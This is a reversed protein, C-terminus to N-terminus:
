ASDKIRQLQMIYRKDGIIMKNCFEVYNNSKMLTENVFAKLKLSQYYAYAFSIVSPIFSLLCVVGPIVCILGILMIVAGFGGLYDLFHNIDNILYLAAFIILVLEVAFIKLFKSELTVPATVGEKKCRDYYDMDIMPPYEPSFSYWVITFKAVM